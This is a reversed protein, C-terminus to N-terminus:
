AAAEIKWDPVEINAADRATFEPALTTARRLQRPEADARYRRVRHMTCRNDWIVLDGARWTHTFVNGPLTALETLELLLMRGVPVPMGLIRDAHASLYLTKRGSEPLTRVVDHAVRQEKLEANGQANGYGLALRATYANHEAVLGEVLVKYEDSLSDWAARMDAFQTEGGVSTVVMGYLMSLHAPVAKFSSDTHWFKNGMDLVRRTDNADVMRGKEDLNSVELLDTRHGRSYGPSMNAYGDLPGFRSAFNLQQEEDLIQGPLVLVCREILANRIFAVDTDSARAADIGEIRAAFAPQLATLDPV